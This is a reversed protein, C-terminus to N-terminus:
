QVRREKWSYSGFKGLWGATVTYLIHFPQMLWFWRLWARGGMFSSVRYMFVWECLTKCLLMAGWIQWLYPPNWIALLPLLLLSANYSFVLVLVLLMTRDRYHASKSAWRIRQNIFSKWDPMPRTLVMSEPHHCYSIRGPYAGSLKQMLLMDDGSAIEDIGRFGGVKYFAAKDYALNAGNCMTHFGAAVSAATIGQLSMFDLCQFLSSFSGTHVYGVPAAVLVAQEQARCAVLLSLWRHPVTCDADTTVILSGRSRGVALEIARKKYSNLRRGGTFEALDLLQVQPWAPQLEEVRERTGDTSHDDIVIIEYLHPPYDGKLISQLCPGINDEENRAPILISIFETPRFLLDPVFRPLRALLRYYYGILLAYVVTLLLGTLLLLQFLLTSLSSFLNAQCYAPM